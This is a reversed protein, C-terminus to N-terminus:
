NTLPVLGKSINSLGVKKKKNEGESLFRIQKKGHSCVVSQFYVVVSQDCRVIKHPVMDYFSKVSRQTTNALGSRFDFADRDANGMNNNM